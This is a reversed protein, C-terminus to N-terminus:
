KNYMSKITDGISKLGNSSSDKYNNRQEIISLKEMFEAFYFQDVIFKKPIGGKKDDPTIRKTKDKGNKGQKIRELRQKEINELVFTIYLHERDTLEGFSCHETILSFALNRNVGYEVLYWYAITQSNTLNSIVKKAFDPKVGFKVLKDLARKKTQSLENTESNGLNFLDLQGKTGGKKYIFERLVESRIFVKFDIQIVSRNQKIKEYEFYYPVFDNNELEEKTTQLVWKDFDYFRKYKEHVGFFLKLEEVSQSFSIELVDSSKNHHLQFLDVIRSTFKSKYPRLDWILKTYRLGSKYIFYEAIDPSFRAQIKGKSIGLSSLWNIKIFDKKHPEKILVPNDNFHDFLNDLINYVDSWKEGTASNMYSIFDQVGVEIRETPNDKNMQSALFYALQRGRLSLTQGGLLIKNQQIIQPSTKELFSIM